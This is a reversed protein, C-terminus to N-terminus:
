WLGTPKGKLSEKLLQGPFPIKHLNLLDVSSKTRKDINEPTGYKGKEKVIKSRRVVHKQDTFSM